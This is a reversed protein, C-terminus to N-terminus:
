YAIRPAHAHCSDEDRPRRVSETAIGGLDQDTLPVRDHEVRPVLSPRVVGNRRHRFGLPDEDAVEATQRLDPKQGLRGVREPGEVGDDM